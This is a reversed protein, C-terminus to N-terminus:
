ERGFIKPSMRIAIEEEEKTMDTPSGKARVIKRLVETEAKTLEYDKAFGDVEEDTVDDDDDDDDDTPVSLGLTSACDEIMPGMVDKLAHLKAKDIADVDANKLVVLALNYLYTAQAGMLSVLEGKDANECVEEMYKDTFENTMGILENMNQVNEFIKAKDM